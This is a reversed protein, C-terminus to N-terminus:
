QEEDQEEQEEEPDLFRMTWEELRGKAELVRRLLARAREQEERRRALAVHEEPARVLMRLSRDADRFSMPRRGGRWGGGGGVDGTDRSQKKYREILRSPLYLDAIFLAVHARLRLLEAHTAYPANELIGDMRATIELAGRQTEARLADTADHRDRHDHNYHDDHDDDQDSHRKRRRGGMGFGDGDEDNNDIDMEYDHDRQNDPSSVRSSSPSSPFGHETYIHYLANQFEADLNYVEIGFLAPWFDVASTFHPRHVDYPHQQILTELYTKVQAFNAATGWRQPLPPITRKEETEEEEEEEEEHERGDEMEADEELSSMATNSQSSPASSSMTPTSLPEEGDRMLIESGIAWLNDIRVDVDKTRVLLGFARKARAMDGDRLCRHMIATMTNLHRIRVSHKGSGEKNKTGSGEKDHKDRTRRQQLTDTEVGSDFGIPNNKPM